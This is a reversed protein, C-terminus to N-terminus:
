PKKALYLDITDHLTYVGGCGNIAERFDLEMRIRKDDPMSRHDSYTGTLKVYQDADFSRTNHYLKYHADIFGYHRIPNIIEACEDENFRHPKSSSPMYKDYVKQLAIHVPANENAPFPRNFFLALVGGRKLVRFAKKYGIEKPIWHFASACYFLDYANDDIDASEFDINLVSFKQYEAFKEECFRALAEGIEIATVRCGTQLFPLTAQGTGIGVELAQKESNLHAYRIVDDFLAKVYTPRMEDYASVADNFQYKLANDMSRLRSDSSDM